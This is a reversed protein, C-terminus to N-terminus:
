LDGELIALARTYKEELRIRRATNRLLHIRSLNDRIDAKKVRVAQANGLMNRIYGDYTLYSYHTLLMLTEIQSDICGAVELDTFNLDTDEVVDHLVAVIRDDDNDMTMMVRLPHYIYPDNNYLQGEHAAAALGIAEALTIM